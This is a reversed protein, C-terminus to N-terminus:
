DREELLAASVITLFEPSKRFPEYGEVRIMEFVEEQVASFMDTRPPMSHVDLSVRSLNPQKNFVEFQENKDIYQEYITYAWSWSERVADRWEENGENQESEKIETLISATRTSFANADIWFLVLDERKSTSMFEVLCKCTHQNRLMEKLDTSIKDIRSIDTKSTLKEHHCQSCSHSTHLSVSQPARM